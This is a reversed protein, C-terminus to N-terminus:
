RGVGDLTAALGERVRNGFAVGRDMRDLMQVLTQHSAKLPHAEHFARVERALSESAILTPVGTALRIHMDPPFYTTARDWESTIKRWLTEGHVRNTALVGMLFPADQSRFEGYCREYTELALEVDPIAVAAFLYRQEDQPTTAAKRRADLEEYTGPRNQAATIAVIPQALDGSVRHDDFLRLAEAIVEPDKGYIGLMEVAMARLEGAQESEGPIPSWTLRELVPGYIRRVAGALVVRGEDDTIRDITALATGIVSWSSPEDLNRLGTALTLLGRITAGGVYISAWTDSFLVARELEDLEDLHAAIAALEGDGYATRYFGSGGANVVAIGSTALEASPTTLLQKSIKKSSIERSLVPVLFDTGVNSNEQPPLYSFPTQTITGNEVKILPHGGQLIWTNMIQGVPQQSSEELANWLDQTVTNAYAHKKLYLRIGDRFTEEGLYQELMRLVACGKIYTLIDFMGRCDNPSVVEYEIARTSHLGDVNFAMDRSTNFGVWKKWQPRFHDTCISEMFTAFAENLWIGEWWDMTVLDGFWMHAIEHNVVAAVREVENFSARDPDVLLATDRFTVLGLNEMAGAAFDPIAILDLKDGPYPIAFYDTFFELAHIATEMGIATLHGKGLPYIIRVPVGRVDIVPTEAFPGVVFAVLYTSMKMTPAFSVSRQGNGLDVDSVVASNSYAALHSPVTLHVEYTAKYAPEDWCPFARRADHSEFQTTALTHTVGTDDTYTSRYFGHLLDNLIGSFSIEITGRGLPLADDFAFNATQYEADYSPEASRYTTGNITIVAAGVELDLANLAFTEVSENVDVSIEVRGSFTAAELDPAMFIKYASPVVTAPLRYPNTSTTVLLLVLDEASGLGLSLRTM